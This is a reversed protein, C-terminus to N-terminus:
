YVTKQFASHMQSKEEVVVVGCGCGGGDVLIWNWNLSQAQVPGLGTDCHLVQGQAQWMTKHAERHHAVVVIKSRQVIVQMREEIGRGYTM